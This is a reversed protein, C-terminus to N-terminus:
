CKRDGGLESGMKGYEDKVKKVNGKNKKEIKVM